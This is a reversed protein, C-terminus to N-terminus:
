EDGACATRHEHVGCPLPSSASVILFDLSRALYRRAYVEPCRQVLRPILGIVELRILILRHDMFNLVAVCLEDYQPLFFNGSHRLM